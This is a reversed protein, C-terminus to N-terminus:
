SLERLDVTKSAALKHQGDPLATPRRALCEFYEGIMLRRKMVVTNAPNDEYVSFPIVRFDFSVRSRGSRNIQNGHELNAGDFVLAQGYELICPRFDRKGEQSELWVATTETVPTLPIWFNIETPSHNHDCDRHFNGVGVNSPLQVRFNPIKQFVIDEGILDLVQERVFLRYTDFFNKGIAYLHRHLDTAQDTTRTFLPYEYSHHLLSLDALGLHDAVISAFPYRETDYRVILKNLM